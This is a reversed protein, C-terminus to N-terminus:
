EAQGMGDVEEEVTVDVTDVAPEASVDEAPLLEVGQKSYALVLITNELEIAAIEDNIEGMRKESEKQQKTYFKFEEGDQYDWYEWIKAGAEESKARVEVLEARLAEIKERNQEVLARDADATDTSVSWTKELNILMIDLTQELNAVEEEQRKIVDLRAGAEEMIPEALKYFQMATAGDLQKQYAIYLENFMADLRRMTAENYVGAAEDKIRQADKYPNTLKVGTECQSLVLIVAVVLTYGLVVKLRRFFKRKM